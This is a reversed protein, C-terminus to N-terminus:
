TKFWSARATIFNRTKPKVKQNCRYGPDTQHVYVKVYM